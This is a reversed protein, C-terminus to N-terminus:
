ARCFPRIENGASDAAVIELDVDRHVATAPLAEIQSAITDDYIVESLRNGKADDALEGTGSKM